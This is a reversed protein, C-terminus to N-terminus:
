FNITLSHTKIKLGFFWSHNLHLLYLALSTIRWDLIHKVSNNKKNNNGSNDSNDTKASFRVLAEAARLAGLEYSKRCSM